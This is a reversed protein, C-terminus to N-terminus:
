RVVVNKSAAGTTHGKVSRVNGARVMKGSKAKEGMGKMSGGFSKKSKSKVMKRRRAEKERLEAEKRKREQLRRYAKQVLRIAKDEKTMTMLSLLNNTMRLMTGRDPPCIKSVMEYMAADNKISVNAVLKAIVEHEERGVKNFLSDRCVRSKVALDYNDPDSRLAILDTNAHTWEMVERIESEEMNENEEINLDTL